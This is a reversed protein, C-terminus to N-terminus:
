DYLYERAEEHSLPNGNTADKFIGKLSGKRTYNNLMGRIDACIHISRKVDSGVKRRALGLFFGARVFRRRTEEMPTWGFRINRGFQVGMFTWRILDSGM